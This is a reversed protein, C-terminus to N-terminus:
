VGLAVVTRAVWSAGSSVSWSGPDNNIANLSIGTAIMGRIGSGDVSTQNDPTNVPWATISGSTTSVAAVALYVCWNQQPSLPSVAINPPNPTGSNGAAAGGIAFQVGRVAVFFKIMARSNGLTITATTTGSETGDAWKNVVNGMNGGGDNAFAVTPGGAWGPTSFTTSGQDSPVFYGQWLWDGAKIGSPATITHSTSAGAQTLSVAVVHPPPRVLTRDGVHRDPILLRTM